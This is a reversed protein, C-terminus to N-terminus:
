TGPPNPSRGDVAATEVPNQRSMKHDYVLEADTPLRRDAEHATYTRIPRRDILLEFPEETDDRGGIISVPRGREELVNHMSMARGRHYDNFHIVIQGRSLKAADLRSGVPYDEFGTEYREVPNNVLTAAPHGASNDADAKANAQSFASVPAIATLATLLGTATQRFHKVLDKSM